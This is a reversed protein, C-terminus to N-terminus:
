EPRTTARPRQNLHAVIDDHDATMPRDPDREAGGNDVGNEGVSYVIPDAGGPSYILPRGSMPDLPVAALDAPVLQGLTKPRRGDHALAFRRIAVAAAAARREALCGFDRAATWRVAPVTVSAFPHWGARATIEREIATPMLRQAAPWDAARCALTLQELYACLLRADSLAMPGLAYGELTLDISNAAPNGDIPRGAAISRQTDVATMRETQWGLAQGARAAREDLLRAVVEDVQAASAAAPGNGIRLDPTIQATTDATAWWIGDAIWHAVRTPRREAADALRCLDLLYVAATWDDGDGHASRAALLLLNALAREGTLDFTGAAMLYPRVFADHWSGAAKGRAAAVRALAPGNDAVVGHLTDREAPTLPVVFTGDPSKDWRIWSPRSVDILRAAAKYDLSANDADAISDTPLDAPTVPEGTARLRALERDLQRAEWGHAVLPAVAVALVLGAAAAWRKWRWRTAPRDAM